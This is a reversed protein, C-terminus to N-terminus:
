DNLFDDRRQDAAGPALDACDRAVSEILDLVRGSWQVKEPWLGQKVSDIEAVLSRVARANDTEEAAQLHGHFAVLGDSMADLGTQIGAAKQASLAAQLTGFAAIVDDVGQGCLADRGGTAATVEAAAVPPPAEDAGVENGESGCGVTLVAFAIVIATRICFHMTREADM